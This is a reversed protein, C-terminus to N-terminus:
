INFNVTPKSKKIMFYFEDLFILYYYIPICALIIFGIIIVLNVLGFLYFGIAIGTITVLTYLIGMTVIFYFLITNRRYNNEKLMDIYQAMHKKALNEIKENRIREHERRVKARRERQRARPDTTTTTYTTSARSTQNNLTGSDIAKVITNYALQIDQFKRQADADQNVDPHWKKALHLYQTRIIRLDLTPSLELVNYCESITM